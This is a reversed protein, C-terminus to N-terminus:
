GRQPSTLQPALAAAARRSGTPCDAPAESASNRRLSSWLSEAAARKPLRRADLEPFGCRLKEAPIGRGTRLAEDRDTRHVPHPLSAQEEWEQWTIKDGKSRTDTM